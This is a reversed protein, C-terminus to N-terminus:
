KPPPRWKIPIERRCPPTVKQLKNGCGSEARRGIAAAPCRQDDDAERLQHDDEVDRDHVDRQGRDLVVEAEALRVQRPDDVREEDREAAQQEQGATEAVEEAPPADEEGAEDDERGRRQQAADRRRLCLQDAGAQQLADAGGGLRGHDQRDDDGLEGAGDLAGARHACVHEDRDGAAREAQEGAPQEGLGQAPVPDEEDVEGDADDREDSPRAKMRASRPSPSRCPTSQSPESSTVADSILAM